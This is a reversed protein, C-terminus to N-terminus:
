DIRKYVINAKEHPRHEYHYRIIEEALQPFVVGNPTERGELHAEMAVFKQLDEQKRNMFEEIDESVSCDDEDRWSGYHSVRKVYIFTDLRRQLRELVALLCVGEIIIPEKAKDLERRVADYHVHNVYRGLNKDLYNDLNIHLWALEKSLQSALWSKGSGDIGDVGTLLPGTTRLIALIESVESTEHM